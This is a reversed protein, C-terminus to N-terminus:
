MAYDTARGDDMREHNVCYLRVRSVPETQLFASEYQASAAKADTKKIVPDGYRNKIRYHNDIM